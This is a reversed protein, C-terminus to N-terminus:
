TGRYLLGVGILPVGLSSAAKLHEAAVTGLGGAFIPLSDTLAYEAAFYAVVLDRQGRHQNTFWTKATKAAYFRFDVVVKQALQAIEPRTSLLEEVRARGLGLMLRHPWELAGPSANPDLSAFLRRAEIKWTWRLNMAIDFLDDYSVETRRRGDISKEVPM